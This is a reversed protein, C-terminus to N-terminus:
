DFLWQATWLLALVAIAASGPMVVATRYWTRSRFRGTLLLAAAIVALQGLEVGVNFSLLATLFHTPPLGLERLASAFGLGHLLGFAFVVAARYRRVQGFLLNEIAVWAISLVILPEVVTAALRVAGFSSLILTTSHAVTFSSVFLLLAKLGRTGLYLGLVFLVHDLGLPLIHLFGFRIYRVITPGPADERNEAEAAAGEGAAPNLAFSPSAQGTVLWRTMSRDGSVDHLTLAIPEEFRFGAGFRVQLPQGSTSLSGHLRVEAMPWSMPNFFAEEALGSPMAASVPHLPM